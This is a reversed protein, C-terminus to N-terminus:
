NAQDVDWSNRGCGLRLYMFSRFRTETSKYMGIDLIAIYTCTSVIDTHRNHLKRKALRIM